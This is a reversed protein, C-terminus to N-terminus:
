GVAMKLFAEFSDNKVTKNKMIKGCKVCQHIIIKKDGKIEMGVPKMMGKCACVRDGPVVDDVHKSWLCKPCHNTYGNGVVKAKCNECVFDETKKLFHQM